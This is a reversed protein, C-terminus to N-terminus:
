RVGKRLGSSLDAAAPKDILWWQEGHTPNVLQAPYRRPDRHGELVARLAGSKRGGSVLFVVRRAANLLPPTMTLRYEGLQPVENAVIWRLDEGLATTRPFLSATHGDEGLGLFVLDFSPPQAAIEGGLTSGDTHRPKPKPPSIGFSTAIALEYDHAAQDADVGGEMRHVSGARTNIHGLLAEHALRFNSREHDSPVPREDGWFFEVEEWNVRDRRPATSLLEYTRQPTAGGALVLRFVGIASRAAAVFLDAAAESLRESDPLIRIHRTAPAPGGRGPRM